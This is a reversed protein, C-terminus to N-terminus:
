INHLATFSLAGVLLMWIPNLRLTTLIGASLFCLVLAAIGGAMTQILLYTAALIMGAAVPRLGISLAKQWRSNQHRACIHAVTYILFSTPGFLSLTAVIAGMMGAVKWGILTAILSGPGPTMRSITFVEVFAEPTFWHHVNVVQRQIDALATQGGGITVISLPVFVVILQIIPDSSLRNRSESEYAHAFGAAGVALVTWLLSFHLLGIAIFTLLMLAVPIPRRPVNNAAVIGMSLSIGIAAAGAGTLMQQTLPYVMLEDFLSALLIIFIAPPLITGVFGIMAGKTGLARYGIWIALNKVNVGPLAQALALGDFFEGQSMLRRKEVFEYLFLGSLGGGFSTLSIRSFALFLDLSTPKSDSDARM